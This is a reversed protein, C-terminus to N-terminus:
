LFSEILSSPQKLPLDQILCLSSLWINIGKVCVHVPVYAYVYANTGSYGDLSLVPIMKM